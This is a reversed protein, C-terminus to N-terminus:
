KGQAVEENAFNKAEDESKFTRMWYVEYYANDPDINAWPIDAIKIQFVRFSMLGADKYKAGINYILLQTGDGLDIGNKPNPNGGGGLAIDVMDLTSNGGNLKTMRVAFVPYNKLSMPLPNNADCKVKIDGRWKKGTGPNKFNLRWRSAGKEDSLIQTSYNSATWREWQNAADWVLWGPQVTVQVSAQYGNEACTAIINATGFGVPTVVGRRVTAVSENDSTWNVSGVTAGTPEYTVALTINGGYLSVPDALAAIAVKEAAIYKDVHLNFVGKVGSRDTSVATIVADGEGACVVAGTQDVTAVSPNSSSWILRSYTHNVPLIEAKLQLEDTVYMKGDESPTTNSINIQEVKVLEPIVNVLVTAESEYIKYDLPPRAVITAEGVKHATIKGNQDVTAVSEDSSTFIITKDDVNDPGFSFNIVTDMGVPLPLTPTLDFSINEILKVQPADLTLQKDDDCSTMAGSAMLM